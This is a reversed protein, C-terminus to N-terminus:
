IQGRSRSRRVTLRACHHTNHPWLKLHVIHHRHQVYSNYPERFTHLLLFEWVFRFYELSGVCHLTRARGRSSSSSSWPCLTPTLSAIPSPWSIVPMCHFFCLKAVFSCCGPSDCRRCTGLTCDMALWPPELPSRTTIITAPPCLDFVSSFRVLKENKGRFFTVPQIRPQRATTKNRKGHEWDGSVPESSGAQDNCSSLRTQMTNEYGNRQDGNSATTSSSALRLAFIVVHTREAINCVTWLPEEDQAAASFFPRVFSLEVVVNRGWRKDHQAQFRTEADCQTPPCSDCWM